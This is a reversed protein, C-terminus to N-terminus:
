PQLRSYSARGITPHTKYAVSVYEMNAMDVHLLIASFPESSASPRSLGNSPLLHKRARAQLVNSPGTIGSSNGIVRIDDFLEEAWYKEPVSPSPHAKEAKGLRSVWARDSRAKAAHDHSVRRLDRICEGRGCKRLHRIYGLRGFATEVRHRAYRLPQRLHHQQKCFPILRDKGMSATALHFAIDRSYQYCRSLCLRLDSVTNTPTANACSM